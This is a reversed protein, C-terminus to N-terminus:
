LRLYISNEIRLDYTAVPAYIPRRKFGVATVPVSQGNVTVAFEGASPAVFQGISNVLDWQLVRAPDPQKTNILKLELLTPTLVHLANTGVPPLALTTYDIISVGPTSSEAQIRYGAAMPLLLGVVVSIAKRM